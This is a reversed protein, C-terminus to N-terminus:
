KSALVAANGLLETDASIRTLPKNRQSRHGSIEFLDFHDALISLADRPSQGAVRLNEPHVELYIREIDPLLPIMGRLVDLEAGEVDIKVLDPRVYRDAFYDALSVAPVSVLSEGSEHELPYMSLAPNNGTSPLTYTLTGTAAGVACNNTSVDVSSPNLVVNQTLMAFNDSDMEFAHVEGAPMHTAALCTYYGLNAGVDAFCRARRLDDLLRLTMPKEHLRNFAYRPYFWRHAVPQETSFTTQRGDLRLKYRKANGYLAQSATNRVPRLVRKVAQVGAARNTM